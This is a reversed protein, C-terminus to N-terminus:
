PSGGQSPQQENQEREIHEILSKRRLLGGPDDPIRRLWQELALTQESVPPPKPHEQPKAGRVLLASSQGRENGTGAARSQSGRQKGSGSPSQAGEGQQSGQAGSQAGHHAERALQAALEADQQAQQANSRGSSNGSSGTNGAAQAGASGSRSQGGSQAQGGQSGASKSGGGQPSAGRQGANGQRSGSRGKGNAGGAGSQRQLARAVLDRNHRADKDGPARALAADYAALAARLKGARALANGRNYESGADRLSELLKAAQAYRGAKLEAYARRRPDKFLPAAQEPHGADLLREARQPQTAWLRSWFSAGTDARAGAGALGLVLAGAITVAISRRM